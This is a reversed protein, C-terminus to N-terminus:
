GFNYGENPIIQFHESVIQADRGPIGNGYVWGAPRQQGLCAGFTAILVFIAFKAM